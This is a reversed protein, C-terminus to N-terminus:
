TGSPGTAAQREALDALVVDIGVSEGGEDVPPESAWFLTEQLADHDEASM